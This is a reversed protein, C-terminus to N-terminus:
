YDCGRPYDCGGTGYCYTGDAHSGSGSATIPSREADLYIDANAHDTFTEM